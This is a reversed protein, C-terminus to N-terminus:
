APPTVSAITGGIDNGPWLTTTSDYAIVEEPTALARIANKHMTAAGFVGTFWGSMNLGLTIMEIPTLDVTSNDYVTWTITPPLITLGPNAAEILLGSNITTISGTINNRAAEDSDFLVGGYIFGELIKDDRMGNVENTFITKIEDLPKWTTDYQISIRDNSLTPTINGVDHFLNNYPEITHHTDVPYWNYTKLQADSLGNLTTSLKTPGNIITGSEVGWEAYLNTM